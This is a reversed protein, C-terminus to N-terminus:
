SRDNEKEGHTNVERTKRLRSDVTMKELYEKRRSYSDINYTIDSKIEAFIIDADTYNSLYMQIEQVDNNLGTTLLLGKVIVETAGIREDFELDYLLNMYRTLQGIDKPEANRFKLEVVIFTKRTEFYGAEEQIQFLLDLRSDGIVIQRGVFEINENEGYISKLFDIFQTLHNCIFDELDKESNIYM